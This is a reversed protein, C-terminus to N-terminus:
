WGIIISSSDFSDPARTACHKLAVKLLNFLNNQPLLNFPFNINFLSESTFKILLM